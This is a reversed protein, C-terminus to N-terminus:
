MLFTNRTLVNEHSQEQAIIAFTDIEDLHPEIAETFAISEFNTHTNRSHYSNAMTENDVTELVYQIDCDDHEQLSSVINDPLWDTDIRELAHTSSEQNEAGKKISTKPPLWVRKDTSTRIKEFAIDKSKVYIVTKLLLSLINTQFSLDIKNIKPYLSMCSPHMASVLKGMENIVFHFNATFEKLQFLSAQLSSIVYVYKSDRWKEGSMTKFKQLGFEQKYQM